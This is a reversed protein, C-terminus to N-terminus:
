TGNGVVPVGPELTVVSPVRDAFALRLLGYGVGAVGRLLGPTSVGGPTGCVPGHRELADLLLAARGRLTSRPCRDASALVLLAETIGSEGHCLSLDAPVARETGGLLSLVDCGIGAAAAGVAMGAAGQCWGVDDTPAAATAVVQRAAAMAAASAAQDPEWAAYRSLALAMGAAGDAFGVRQPEDVVALYRQLTAARAAGVRAAEPLGLETHVALMAALCGATGADWGHPDGPTTAHATLGVAHAAWGRVEDDDLLRALRALAYAIGGLGQQAGGGIAAVLHPAGALTDLLGPVATIAEAAVERYRAIGSTEALQALFLAVGLYGSGLAAGMPLVLWQREDVLDLGLWNVRGQRAHSAAILQDGLGCAAALLREPDAATGVLPGISPAPCHHDTGPHTTAMTAAIVWAQDRRDTESMAAVKDLACDLGTRTIAGTIVSGDTATIERDGARCTFLPIDGALLDARESPLLGPAAFAQEWSAADRLLAPDTTEALLAAYSRTPRAVVRIPLDACATILRVYDARHRLVADYALRFGAVIAPEHPLPDLQRGAHTPRNDGGAFVLPRRVPRMADTGPDAWDLGTGPWFGGRAAGIGSIDITGQDGVTPVPLLATRHVSDTLTAAAPCGTDQQGIVPHLLTEVDVMVPQDGCAVVNGYHLDTAHLLHLLALLAGQRRYFVTAADPDPLPAPSVHEVWGYDARVVTNLARLGLDPLHANLQDVFRKFTVHTGVERPRYIVARGDAFVLEAVTRGGRHPDGLGPRLRVLQGPDAGGLLHEVIDDRDRAFRVLLETTAERAAACTQALLRALVPYATFLEALGTPTSLERVFQVFRERGDTGILRKAHMTDVVARSSLTVLRRGLWDAYASGVAGADVYQNTLSPTAANVLPHLAGAIAARWDPDVTARPAAARTVVEIASVWPPRESEGPAAPLWWNPTYEQASQRTGPEAAQRM